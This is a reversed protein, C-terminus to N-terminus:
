VRVRMQSERCVCPTIELSIALFDQDERKEKEKEEERAKSALLSDQM